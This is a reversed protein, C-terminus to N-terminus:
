WSDNSSLFDAVLTLIIIMFIIVAWISKQIASVLDIDRKYALFRKLTIFVYVSLFILSIMLKEIKYNVEMDDFVFVIALCGSFLALFFKLSEIKGFTYVETKYILIKYIVYSSALFGYILLLNSHNM